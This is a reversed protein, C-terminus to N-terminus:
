NIYLNIKKKKYIKKKLDYIKLKELFIKLIKNTRASGLTLPKKALVSM